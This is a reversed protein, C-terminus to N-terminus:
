KDLKGQDKKLTERIPYLRFHLLPPPRIVQILTYEHFQLLQASGSTLSAVFTAEM